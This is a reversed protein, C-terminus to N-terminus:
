IVKVSPGMTLKVYVSKIQDRPNSLKSSVANLVALVNDAIEEEKMEETGVPAHLVPLFKGKCRLRVTKRYREILGKLAEGSINPPIPKPMKGRPGLVQGWYRGVIPILGPEALFFDFERAIKKIERKESISKVDEETFVKDAIGKAKHALEKGAIVAVKVKKGRGHPLVVEVNIRQEQRKFDVNKFNIALDVTQTFNRKKAREKAKKICEILREKGIEM